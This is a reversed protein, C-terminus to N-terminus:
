WAIKKALLEETADANLPESIYMGQAYDCGMSRITKLHDETEIGEAITLMRLQRALYVIIRVIEESEDDVGMWKVFSQDIKLIDVPFHRLYSLSSYGTGFDDMCLIFHMAKLKLLMINASQMDEMLASETIEFKIMEPEVSNEIVIREIREALEPHIFQVTSLNVSLTLPSGDSYKGHWDKLQRSGERLVHFGIPIILGTEEAHPIFENPTVIGKVPHEWRCLAEFGTIRGSQISIIPQYYPKFEQNELARIMEDTLLDKEDERGTLDEKLEQANRTDIFARERYSQPILRQHCIENKFSSILFNSIQRNGVECIHHNGAHEIDVNTRADDVTESNGSLIEEIRTILFSRDCPLTVFHHIGHQLASIFFEIGERPAGVVLLPIKLPAVERQLFSFFDIATDCEYYALVLDPTDDGQFSSTADEFMWVSVLYGQSCLLEEIPYLNSPYCGILLIRKGSEDVEKM